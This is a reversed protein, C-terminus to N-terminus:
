VQANAWGLELLSLPNEYPFGNLEVFNQSPQSKAAARPVEFGAYERSNM